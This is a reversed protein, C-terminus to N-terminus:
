QLCNECHQESCRFNSREEVVDDNHLSLSLTFSFCVKLVGQQCGSFFGRLLFRMLSGVGCGVDVFFIKITTEIVHHYLRRRKCRSLAISTSVKQGRSYNCV